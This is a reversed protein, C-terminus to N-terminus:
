LDTVNRGFLKKYLRSVYNPDSYGFLAAAEYLHLNTHQMLDRMQELKTRNVYQMVTTGEAKKFVACLYEPSIGLERAVATQTLPSTLNQRIFEKARDAYRQEGPLNLSQLRRGQEDLAYLLEMIKAAGQQRYSKLRSRNAVIEDIIRCIEATNNKKRLVTPLLLGETEAAAPRWEVEFGVTHHRHFCPASVATPCRFFNCLVDGKELLLTRGDMTISLTGEAIYTIEAFRSQAAFRNEYNEWEFRHSFSLRPLNLLEICQM